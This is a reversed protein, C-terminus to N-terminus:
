QWDVEVGIRGHAELFLPKNGTHGKRVELVKHQTSKPPLVTPTPAPDADDEGLTLTATQPETSSNTVYVHLRTTDDVREGHSVITPITRKARHAMTAYSNPSSPEIDLGAGVDRYPILRPDGRQIRALAILLLLPKHPAREDGRKWVAFKAFREVIAQDDHSM